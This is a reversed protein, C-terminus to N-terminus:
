ATPPKTSPAPKDETQHMVQMSTSSGSVHSYLGHSGTQYNPAFSINRIVAENYKLENIAINDLNELNAQNHKTLIQSTLYIQDDSLAFRHYGPSLDLLVNYKKQPANDTADSDFSAFAKLTHYVLEQDAAPLVEGLSADILVAEQQNGLKVLVHDGNEVKYMSISTKVGLDLLAAIVAYCIEQCNAVVDGATNTKLIHHCDRIFKMVAEDSQDESIVKQIEIEQKKLAVEANLFRTYDIENSSPHTCSVTVLRRVYNAAVCALNLHHILTPSLLRPHVKQIAENFHIPENLPKYVHNTMLALLSNSIHIDYDEDESRLYDIPLYADLSVRANADDLNDSVEQLQVQRALFPAADGTEEIFCQYLESSSLAASTLPTYHRMNPQSLVAFWDNPYHAKLQTLVLKLINPDETKIALHVVNNKSQTTSFLLTPNSAIITHIEKEDAQRLAAFLDKDSYSM